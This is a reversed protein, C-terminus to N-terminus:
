SFDSPRSEHTKTAAAPRHAYSTWSTHCSAKRQLNLRLTQEKDQLRSKHLNIRPLTIRNHLTHQTPSRSRTRPSREVLRHRFKTGSISGSVQVKDQVIKDAPSSKFMLIRLSLPSELNTGGDDGELPGHRLRYISKHVRRVGQHFTQSELLQSDLTLRKELTTRRPRMSKQSAMGTSLNAASHRNLRERRQQKGRPSGVM